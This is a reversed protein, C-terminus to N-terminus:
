AAWDAVPFVDAGDTRGSMLCGCLGPCLARVQLSWYQRYDAPGVFSLPHVRPKAGGQLRVEELVLDGQGCRLCGSCVVRARWSVVARLLSVSIVRGTVGCKMNFLAVELTTTDEM